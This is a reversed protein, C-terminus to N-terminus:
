ITLECNFGGEGVYVKKGFFERVTVVRSIKGVIDAVAVHEGKYECVAAPDRALIADITSFKPSNM